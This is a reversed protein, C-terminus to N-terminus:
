LSHCVIQRDNRGRMKHSGNDDQKGQRDGNATPEEAEKTGEKSASGTDETSTGVREQGKQDNNVEANKGEM